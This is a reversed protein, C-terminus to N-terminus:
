AGERRVLVSAFFVELGHHDPRTALHGQADVTDAPVRGDPVRQATFRDDTELFRAVVEENEEPESSCTAYVLRGGPRVVEAAARLMQHQTAALVPLDDATRSWKLDPERRVTGLGSCPADLLVCDFVPAFPLAARGDLQVVPVPLRAHRLTQALLIVRGLRHDAAVLAAAGLPQGGATLDAALVLTKGGPSACVDLVREGPRVSAVRAVLQAAEDQAWLRDRLDPPVSGLGGPPLRVADDVFRAREAPVGAERLREVIEDPPVADLSRLTVDPPTNNFHCWAEAAAFGHRTIWRRVLWAPHSLTTALYNVQTDIHAGEAPRAPLSIAPGRRIVTRLVANVMGAASARGLTRIAAVSTHVVAHPPVRDLHRLQYTGLPLMALVPAEITRVSRRSASAIVTDLENRWRLVGTALEVLLGRDVLAVEGRIGDLAASLTTERADVAILVKAAAVRVDIM